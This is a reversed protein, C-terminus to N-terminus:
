ISARIMQYMQIKVYYITNTLTATDFMETKNEKAGGKAILLLKGGLHM